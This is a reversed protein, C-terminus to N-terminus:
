TVTLFYSHWKSTAWVSRDAAGLSMEASPRMEPGPDLLTQSTKTEVRCGSLSRWM